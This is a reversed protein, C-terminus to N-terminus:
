ETESSFCCLAWKSSKDEAGSGVEKVGHQKTMCDIPYDSNTFIDQQYIYNLGIEVKNAHINKM